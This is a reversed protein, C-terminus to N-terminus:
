SVNWGGGLARYVAVLAALSGQQSQVLADRAALVTREADLVTLLDAAGAEYRVRALRAAEASERAANELRASQQVSRTYQSLAGETEELALQVTQEWQVLAAQARAESAGIRHRVRGFDLATWSLSAGLNTNRSARDFLDAAHTSTFGLLGVLSIRPYLDARAVGVSATAAALQREAVRIDPRRALLGQPTGAALTEAGVAPLSPLPKAESLLALTARPARGALTAIRLATREIAGQLAPLSAETSEVLANARAVDLPTGRGLDARARVIRQTERQNVLSEQAVALRQQLARLSLYQTALEAGVLRQAALVGAEGAQVQAAASEGARRARGFFDLEWNFSGSATLYDDIPAGLENGRGAGAGLALSPLRNADAEGALARAERLRAQALRVDANASAADAILADLVPDAFGRWFAAAPEADSAPMVFAPEVVAKPPRHDPGVACGALLSMVAGAFLIERM